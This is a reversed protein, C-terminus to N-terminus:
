SSISPGFSRNSIFFSQKQAFRIDYEHDACFVVKHFVDKLINQNRAWKQRYGEEATEQLSKERLGRSTFIPGFFTKPNSLEIM